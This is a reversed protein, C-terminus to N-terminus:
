FRQILRAHFTVGSADGQVPVALHFGLPGLHLGGGVDTLRGTDHRVFGSDQVDQSIWGVATNVFLSWSPRWEVFPSWDWDGSWDDWDREQEPWPISWPFAGRLEAQFLLFGDCGYAAYVPRAFDTQTADVPLGRVGQRAGCDGQFHRFGPLSGAGGVVHQFQPPLSGSGLPGGSVLRLALSTGATLRNYRRLDMFGWRFDPDEVRAPLPGGGEGLGALDRTDLSVLSPVTLHGGLGWRLQFKGLWGSVPEEPDNRTDLVGHASLSRLRGQAVVPQPRWPEDNNMLSWPGGVQAFRPVEETYTLEGSLASGPPAWRFAADWGRHEQYDRLDRHFLFTSLSAELDSVGWDDLATVESFAGLRLSLGQSPDLLHSVRGRYGLRERALDFGEDSRWIAFAEVTTPRRGGLRVVPGVFVPLGEVRNYNAGAQVLLRLSGRNGSAGFGTQAQPPPRLETIRDDRLTYLFPAPFHRVQGSVQNEADGELDGGVVLLDGQIRAGTALVVRSNVTVVSGEVSGMLHLPGGLVGVNGQITSAAPLRLEGSFRLTTTDNLFDLIWRVVERPPSEGSALPGIQAQIPAAGLLISGTMWFAALPTRWRSGTCKLTM